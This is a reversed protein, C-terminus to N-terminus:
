QPSGDDLDHEDACVRFLDPWPRLDGEIATLFARALAV